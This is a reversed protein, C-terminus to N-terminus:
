YYVKNSIAIGGTNKKLVTGSMDDVPDGQEFSGIPAIWEGRPSQVSHNEFFFTTTTDAHTVLTVM